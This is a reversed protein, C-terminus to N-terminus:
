HSNANTLRHSIKQLGISNLLSLYGEKVSSDSENATRAEDALAIADYWIGSSAYVAAQQLSTKGKLRNQLEENATVRELKVQAYVNKSPHKRNCLASVTLQYRKTKLKVNEPLKFEVVGPTSVYLEQEIVPTIIGEEVLVFSLPLKTKSVYALFTPRESVTLAVHNSPAFLQLYANCRGRSGSGETRQLFPRNTPPTYGLVIGARVAPSNPLHLAVAIFASSVGVLFIKSSFM